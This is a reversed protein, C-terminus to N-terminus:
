LNNKLTASYGGFVVEVKWGPECRAYEDKKRARNKAIQWEAASEDQPVCVIQARKLKSDATVKKIDGWYQPNSVSISPKEPVIPGGYRNRYLVKWEGEEMGVLYYSPSNLDVGSAEIHAMGSIKWDTKVDVQADEGFGSWDWNLSYTQESHVLDGEIGDKGSPGHRVYERVVKKAGQSGGGGGLLFFGGAGAAAVVGAGGALLKRRGVGGQSAKRRDSSSNSRPPQSRSAEGQSGSKGGRDTAQTSNKRRQQGRRNSERGQTDEQPQRGSEGRNSRERRHSDERRGRDQSREQRRQDEQWEGAEIKSGCHECYSYTERNERGCVPCTPM